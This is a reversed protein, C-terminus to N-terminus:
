KNFIKKLGEDFKTTPLYGTIKKLKSSDGRRKDVKFDLREPPYKLKKIKSKSNTLKIIKKAVIEISIDKGKSINVIECGKSKKALLFTAKICDDIFTFDRTQKGDGFIKLNHNRKASEFFRPIVMRQDQRPGYVNFFRLSVSKLGYEKYIAQLYVENFRKAIAYSSTPSVQFDENVFKDIAMKGYIGSTSAYIIKKINYKLSANVINKMGISEIEMTLKHDKAVKEVGLNAAFHFVYEVNKFYREIYSYERIDKKVLKIKKLIEKPLKNGNSLTDIVIVYFKKSILYDVLHSGIFGAGGTVIIKKKNM